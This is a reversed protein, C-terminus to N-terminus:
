AEMMEIVESLWITKVMFPEAELEDADCYCVEFQLDEDETLSEGFDGWNWEYNARDFYESVEGKTDGCVDIIENSYVTDYQEQGNKWGKVNIIERTRM